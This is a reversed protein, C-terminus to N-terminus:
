DEKPIAEHKDTIHIQVPVTIEAGTREDYLIVFEDKIELRLRRRERLTYQLTSLVGELRTIKKELIKIQQEQAQNQAQLATITSSQVESLGRNRNGLFAIVVSIAAGLAIMISLVPLFAGFDPM